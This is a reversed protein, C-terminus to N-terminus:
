KTTEVWRFFILRIPFRGWTPTFILCIRFWGTVWSVIHEFVIKFFPHSGLIYARKAHLWVVLFGQKYLSCLKLIRCFEHKKCRSLNQCWWGSMGKGGKKIFSEFDWKVIEVIQEAFHKWFRSLLAIKIGVHMKKSLTKSSVIRCHRLSMEFPGYWIPDCAINMM